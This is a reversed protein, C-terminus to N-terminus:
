WNLMWMSLMGPDYGNRRDFNFTREFGLRQLNTVLQQETPTTIVFCARQGGFDNATGKYNQSTAEIRLQDITAKLKEFTDSNGCTIQALACCVTPIKKIM